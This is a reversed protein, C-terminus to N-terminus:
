RRKELEAGAPDTVRVSSVAGDLFVVHLVAKEYRKGDTRRQFPLRVMVQQTGPRAVVSAISLEDLVPKVVGRWTADADTIDRGDATRLTLSRLSRIGVDDLALVLTASGYPPPLDAAFTVSRIGHSVAENAFAAVALCLVLITTKM